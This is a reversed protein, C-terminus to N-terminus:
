DLKEALKKINALMRYQLIKDFPKIFTWYFKGASMKFNFETIAYVRTTKTDIPELYFAFIGELFKDALKLILNNDNVIETVVFPSIKDGVALINENKKSSKSWKDLLQRMKPMWEFTYWGYEGGLRAIFYFVKDPSAVIDTTRTFSIQTNSIYNEIHNIFEDPARLNETIQSPPM